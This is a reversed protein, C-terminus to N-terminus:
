VSDSVFRKHCAKGKLSSHKINKCSSLPLHMLFAILIFLRLLLHASSSRRICIARTYIWRTTSLDFPKPRLRKKVLIVHCFSSLIFLGGLLINFRQHGVLSDIQQICRLLFPNRIKFGVQHSPGTTWNATRKGLLHSVRQGNGTYYVIGASWLYHNASWFNLAIKDKTVPHTQPLDM